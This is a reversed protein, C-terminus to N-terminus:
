NENPDIGSEACIKIRGSVRSGVTPRYISSVSKHANQFHKLRCTEQRRGTYPATKKVVLLLMVGLLTMIQLNFFYPQFYSAM